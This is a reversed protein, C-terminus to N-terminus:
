ATPQESQIEPQVSQEAVTEPNGSETAEVPNVAEVSEVPEVKEVKKVKKVKKAPTKKAPAKKAPAKAAKEAAAAKAKAELEEKTPCKLNMEALLKNLVSRSVEARESIQNATYKGTKALHIAKYNAHRAAVKGNKDLAAAVTQPTIVPKGAAENIKKAIETSSTAGDAALARAANSASTYEVGNVKVAIGTRAM